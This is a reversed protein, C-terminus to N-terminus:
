SNPKMRWQEPALSNHALGLHRAAEREVDSLCDYRILSIVLSKATTEGFGTDTLIRYTEMVRRKMNDSLDEVLTDFQAARITDADPKQFHLYFEKNEM